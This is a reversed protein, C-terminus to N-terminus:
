KGKMEVYKQPQSTNVDWHSTQGQVQTDRYQCLSREQESSSCYSMVRTITFWM